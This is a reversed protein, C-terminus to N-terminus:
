APSLMSLRARSYPREVSSSIAALQSTSLGGRPVSKYTGVDVGVFVGDLVGVSVGEGVNVAVACVGLVGVERAAAHTGFGGALQTLYRM